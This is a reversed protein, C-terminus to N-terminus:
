EVPHDSVDDSIEIDTTWVHIVVKNVHHM